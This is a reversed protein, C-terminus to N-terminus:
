FSSKLPPGIWSKLSNEEPLPVDLSDLAYNICRSIEIFPDTLTGDLDLLCVPITM